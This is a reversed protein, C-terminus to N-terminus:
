PMLASSWASDGARLIGRHGAVGQLEQLARTMGTINASITIGWKYFTYDWLFLMFYGTIVLLHDYSYDLQKM